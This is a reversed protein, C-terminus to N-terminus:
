KMSPNKKVAHIEISKQLLSIDITVEIKILYKINTKYEVQFCHLWIQM